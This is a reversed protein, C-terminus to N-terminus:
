VGLVEKSTSLTYIRLKLKGQPYQQTEYDLTQWFLTWPLQDLRRLYSVTSDYTAELELEFVHRYILAEQEQQEKELAEAAPLGGLLSDNAANTQDDFSMGDFDSLGELQVAEEPLNTLSLLRMKKEQILVSELLSIMQNPAVLSQTVKAIDSDLKAGREKLIALENRLPENPDQTRQERTTEIQKALMLNTNDLDAAQQNTSSISLWLPELIVMYLLLLLLFGSGVLVIKKEREALGEYQKIAALTKENQWWTM